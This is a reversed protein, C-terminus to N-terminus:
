PTGRLSYRAIQRIIDLLRNYHTQCYVGNLATSNAADHYIRWIYGEERCGKVSCKM